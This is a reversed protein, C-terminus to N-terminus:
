VLVLRKDFVETRTNGLPAKLDHEVAIVVIFRMTSRLEDTAIIWRLPHGISPL